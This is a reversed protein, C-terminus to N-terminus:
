KSPEAPKCIDEIRAKAGEILLSLAEAVDHGNGEYLLANVQTDVARVLDDFTNATAKLRRLEMPDVKIWKPM